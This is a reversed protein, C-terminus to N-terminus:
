APESRGRAAALEVELAVIGSTARRRRTRSRRARATRPSRRRTCRTERAAATSSRRARGAARRRVEGTVLEQTTDVFADLAARLPCFWHGDYVLKAWTAELQRKADARGEDARPGRARPPRRHARAGGAGRVARPEQDRGRPERDHRDARDRVRRGARQARRDARRAAAGRRRALGAPRARLRDRGRGARARRRAISTLAFADEPPAAWPDELVGAEIARGFLNDDVSYPSEAKAAVPIGRARARVRDGRRADLDRRAAARDRQRRPLDGQVRARLAGPRQGQGHLRPRDGRRRARARARRRGGRDGAALAGLGAPVPGRLAREDVARPRGARRRVDRKRDLAAVDEAGAAHGRAFSADLDFEQGVDVLVAVVDDFGYDEKLWAIRLM